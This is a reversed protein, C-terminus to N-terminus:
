RDNKDWARPKGQEYYKCRDVRSTLPDAVSVVDMKWESCNGVVNKNPNWTM